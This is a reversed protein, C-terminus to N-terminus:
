KQGFSKICIAKESFCSKVVKIPSSDYELLSVHEGIFLQEQSAQKCSSDITLAM